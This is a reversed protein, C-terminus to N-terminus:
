EGKLEKLIRAKKQAEEFTKEEEAESSAFEVKKGAKVIDEQVSEEAEHQAEEARFGSGGIGEMENSYSMNKYNIIVVM